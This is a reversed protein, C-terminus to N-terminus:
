EKVLSRFVRQDWWWAGNQFLIPVKCCITVEVQGEIDKEPPLATIYAVCCRFLGGIRVRSNAAM